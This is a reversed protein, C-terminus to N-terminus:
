VIKFDKLEFKVSGFGSFGNLDKWVFSMWWSIFSAVDRSYNEASVEDCVFTSVVVPKSLDICTEFTLYDCGHVLKEKRDEKTLFGQKNLINIKDM